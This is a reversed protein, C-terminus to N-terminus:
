SEELDDTDAAMIFTKVETAAKEVNEVFYTHHRSQSFWVTHAELDCKWEFVLVLLWAQRVDFWHIYLM